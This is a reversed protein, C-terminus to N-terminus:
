AKKLPNFFEKVYLPESYALNAFENLHYAKLARIALHSANHQIDSFFAAKNSLLAKLKPHGSGTFLVPNESLLSEFSHEDLILAHPTEKENLQQDYLATFVEMRRADIMPCILAAADLPKQYGTLVSQAMVELTNLLILPKNLAYCIGKATALGVRLGTYSGPGSTVAIADLAQLAYGGSQMLEAIAPQIFSAHNKQETSEILGLITEDKTLCVSAHDTATDINLLLAM